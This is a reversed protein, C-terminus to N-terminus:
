RRTGGRPAAPRAPRRIARRRETARGPGMCGRPRRPGRGPRSSCGARRTAGSRRFSPRRSSGRRSSRSSRSARAPLTLAGHPWSPTPSTGRVVCARPSGAQITATACAKVWRSGPWTAVCARSRRGTLPTSRAPRLRTASATSPPPSWRPRRPSRERPAWPERANRSASTSCRVPRWWSTTPSAAPPPEHAWGGSCGTSVIPMATWSPRSTAARISPAASGPPALRRRRRCGCSGSAPRYSRRRSAPWGPRRARARPRSLYSRSGARRDLMYRGIAVGEANPDGATRWSLRGLIPAGAPDAALAPLAGAARLAAPAGAGCPALLAVARRSHVLAAARRPDGGDDVVRLAVKRGGPLGGRADFRGLALIAGEAQSRCRLADAGALDATMLVERPTSGRVSADGVTLAVPVDSPSGDVSVGALFTGRSTLDVTTAWTGAGGRRLLARVPAPACSCRLTVAISRPAVTREPRGARAAAVPTAALTNRGPLAPALTLRVGVGPATATGFTAGMLLNGRQAPLAQGRGPVLGALTAALLVVGVAGLAELRLAGSAARGHRLALASAAAVPGLLLLLASKAIVVRGYDSWRLFYWLHVERVAALPGTVALVAVGAAALPAFRRLSKLDRPAGLALVVLGGMWIGAALVHLIQAPFAVAPAASVTQLHGALAYTVLAAAGAAGLLVTEARPVRSRVLLAAGGLAVVLGLRVLALVGTPQAVLVRLSTGRGADAAAAVAYWTALTVALLGVAALRRRRAERVVDRLLAGALLVGAAVLGLWRAAVGFASDGGGSQDGGAATAGLVEAGPPVGGGPRPVGFRFTGTVTHGDDGLASWRVAYVAPALAGTVSAALESGGRRVLRGLPVAGGDPRLLKVSSGARVVPESFSLAVERPTGPAVAGAEPSAQVLFPHAGASAALGLSIAVSM